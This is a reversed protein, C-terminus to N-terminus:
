VASYIGGVTGPMTPTGYISLSKSYKGSERTCRRACGAIQLDSCPIITIVLFVLLLNKMYALGFDFDPSFKTVEDLLIQCIRMMMVKKEGPNKVM